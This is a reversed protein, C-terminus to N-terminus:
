YLFIDAILGPAIGQVHHSAVTVAHEVFVGSSLARWLLALGSVICFLVASVLCFEVSSQGSESLLSRLGPSM